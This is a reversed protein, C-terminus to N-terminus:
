LEKYNHSTLTWYIWNGIWVGHRTVVYTVTYDIVVAPKQFVEVERATWRSVEEAGRNHWMSLMTVLRRDKWALPLYKDQKRYTVVKHKGLKLVKKKMEKPMSKRNQLLTGTFHIKRKLLVWALDSNTYFRDTYLNYGKENTIYQVKSILELVIRSTFTLEQHMLSKITISVYYPIMGCVYGNRSDAIVYICLEWNSPKQPNYM